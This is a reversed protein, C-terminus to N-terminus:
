LQRSKNFHQVNRHLVGNTSDFSCVSDPAKM